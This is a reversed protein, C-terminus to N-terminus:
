LRKRDAGNLSAARARVDRRYQSPSMGMWLHFARRFADADCFDLQSSVNEISQDDRQLLELGLERRCSDRISRYSTGEAALKRRLTTTSRGLAVAVQAFDPLVGANRLSRLAFDRVAEGSSKGSSRNSTGLDFLFNSQQDPDFDEVNRVIPHDLFSAAFAFSTRPSDLALEFPFAPFGLSEFIQAEHALQVRILPIPRGILWALLAHVQALGTLDILCGSLSREHRGSDLEVECVASHARTRMVGCRGDIAAFCDACHALAQRLTRASTLGYLIVRWDEARLPERGSRRSDEAALRNIARSNLRALRDLPMASLDPLAAPGTRHEGNEELHRLSGFTAIYLELTRSAIQRSLLFPDIEGPM